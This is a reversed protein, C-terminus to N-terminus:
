NWELCHHNTRHLKTGSSPLQMTNVCYWPTLHFILLIQTYLAIGCVPVSPLSFSALPTQFLLYQHSFFNTHWPWSQTSCGLQEWSRHQSHWWSLKPSRPWVRTDWACGCLHKEPAVWLLPKEKRYFPHQVWCHAFSGRKHPKWSTKISKRGWKTTERGQKGQKKEWGRQHDAGAVELKKQIVALREFIGCFGKKRGMVAKSTM